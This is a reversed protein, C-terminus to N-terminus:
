EVQKKQQEELTNALGCFKRPKMTEKVELKVVYEDKLLELFELLSKDDNISWVLKKICLRTYYFSFPEIKKESRCFWKTM